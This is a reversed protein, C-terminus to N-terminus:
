AKTTTHRTGEKPAEAEDVRKKNCSCSIRIDLRHIDAEWWEGV